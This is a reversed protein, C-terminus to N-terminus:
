YLLVNLLNTKWKWLQFSSLSYIFTVVSIRIQISLKTVVAKIEKLSTRLKDALRNKREREKENEKLSPNMSALLENVHIMSM